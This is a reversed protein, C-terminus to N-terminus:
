DNTHRAKALPKPAHDVIGTARRIPFDLSLRGAREFVLDVSATEGTRFPTEVEMFTLHNGGPAFVVTQGPEIDIGDRLSVLTDDGGNVIRLHLETWIAFPTSAAILCEKVDGTNHVTMYGTSLTEGPRTERAWYGSIELDGFRKAQIPKDHANSVSVNLVALLLLATALFSFGRM